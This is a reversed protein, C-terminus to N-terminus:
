IVTEPRVIAVVNVASPFVKTAVAITFRDRSKLHPHPKARQLVVLEQRLVANEAVLGALSRAMDALVGLVGKAIKRFMPARTDPVSTASWSSSM